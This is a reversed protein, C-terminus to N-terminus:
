TVALPVLEFREVDVLGRDTIKLAPIVSLALFSLTMFPAADRVGHEALMDQLSELREVVDEVPADSLLGAIPLALEGRVAGGRAVVIGGGIAQLREVCATMADDEIGVVVINHADHAVTSAFAGERLGFGRVLGLGIRGTAHHREVVAIKALDRAPDAVVQGDAVPPEEERALTILQGPVIEIVRVRAAGAPIAFADAALPAANMTRRLRDPIPARAFPEATGGAAVLRGDKYVRAPRFSELDELLVLDARLGPAVAGRDLLRHARAPHLTAMLLADEPAIGEQVAIRCMQDIHGERFLLDPERDDTCFACHEAGYRAVLPLLDRLNRANSAERILVWMGRRRKELAEESTFAEHDSGIGAAVYADLAAGTVGPAHGDVHEAVLRSLVDPDGAIVGPFNMMEAVGIARPHRLIERMEAPGLPGCASEFGSAPVCSPAMVFVDLPLGDTADLLWRVGEVGGVNAIEHPDCVVATTGRPVVARAFQDPTLKASELHVHADIFGPVLYRRHAAIRRGGAYAGVGAIRGGAVAVDGEIWERTFASYVHADEIVVDPEADGRAVAILHRRAAAEGSAAATGRGTM